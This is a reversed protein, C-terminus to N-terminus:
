NTAYRPVFRNDFSKTERNIHNQIGVFDHVFNFDDANLWADLRLHWHKDALDIDLVTTLRDSRSIGLQEARQAIEALKLIREMDERRAGNETKKRENDQM